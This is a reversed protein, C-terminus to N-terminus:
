QRVFYATELVPATDLIEWLYTDPEVGLNRSVNKAWVRSNGAYHKGLEQLTMNVSYKKSEGLAIKDLQHQLASWGDAQTRFRAHGGKCVGLQGPYRYDRLVKLDGPNFCRNPITHPTYYGETKAIAQALKDVSQASSFTYCLLFFTLLRM